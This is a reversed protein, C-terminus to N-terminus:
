CMMMVRVIGEEEAKGQPSFIDLWDESRGIRTACMWFVKEDLKNVERGGSRVRAFSRRVFCLRRVGVDEVGGWDRLRALDIKSIPAYVDIRSLSLVENTCYM